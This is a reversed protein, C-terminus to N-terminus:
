GRTSEDGRITWFDSGWKMVMKQPIFCYGNKGWTTNWSNRDIFIPNDPDSDNYGVLEM